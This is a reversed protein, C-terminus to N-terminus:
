VYVDVVGSSWHTPLEQEGFQDLVKLPDQPSSHLACCYSWKFAPILTPPSIFFESLMAESVSM